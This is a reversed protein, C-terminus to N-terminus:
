SLEQNGPIWNKRKDLIAALRPDSDEIGILAIEHFKEELDKLAANQAHLDGGCSKAILEVLKLRLVVISMQQRLALAALSEVAGTLSAVKAELEGDNM